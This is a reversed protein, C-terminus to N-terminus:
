KVSVVFAQTYTALMALALGAAALGNSTRM